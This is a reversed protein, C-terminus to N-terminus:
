HGSWRENRQVCTQSWGRMEWETEHMISSARLDAVTLIRERRSLSGEFPPRHEIQAPHVHSIRIGYNCRPLNNCDLRV